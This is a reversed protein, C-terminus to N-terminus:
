SNKICRVIWGIIYIIFHFQGALLILFMIIAGIPLYSSVAEYVRKVAVSWAVEAVYQLAMFFTALLGIGMFFYGNVLLNAWVRTHHYEGYFKGSPGHDRIFGVIITILGIAMLGFTINRTRNTFTYNTDSM